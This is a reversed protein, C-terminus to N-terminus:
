SEKCIVVDQFCCNVVQKHVNLVWDLKSDDMDRAVEVCDSIHKRM